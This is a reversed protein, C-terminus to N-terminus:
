RPQDNRARLRVKTFVAQAERSATHSELSLREVWEPRRCLIPWAPAISISLRCRGYQWEDPFACARLPPAERLWAVAGAGVLSHDGRPAPPLPPLAPAARVSRRGHPQWRPTLVRPPPPALLAPPSPPQPPPAPAASPPPRAAAAMAPCRTAAAAAVLAAPLLSPQAANRPDRRRRHRRPGGARAPPRAPLVAALFAAVALFASASAAVALRRPPTAAAAALGGNHYAYAHPPPPRRRPCAPGPCTPAAPSLLRRGDPLRQQSRARCRRPWRRPRRPRDRCRGACRSLTAAHSGGGRRTRTRRCCPLGYLRRLQRCTRPRPSPVAAAALGGRLCQARAVAASSHSLQPALRPPSAPSRHQM